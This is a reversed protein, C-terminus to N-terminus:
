SITQPLRMKKTKWLNTLNKLHAFTILNSFESTRCCKRKGIVYGM